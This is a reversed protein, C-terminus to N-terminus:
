RNHYIGSRVLGCIELVLAKRGRLEIVSITHKMWKSRSSGEPEAATNNIKRLIDDEM